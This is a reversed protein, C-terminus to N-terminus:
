FKGDRDVTASIRQSNRDPDKAASRVTVLAFNWRVKDKFGAMPLLTGVVARGTGGLAVRNTTGPLFEAAITSASTVETAGEDTLTLRRGLWGKGSIVREFVFRGDPGTASEYQVYYRPETRENTHMRAVNLSLPINPAPTKGIRFTGEVRAWPELHIIKTLDWDRKSKIHAFGSEHTIVLQFDSEQAPFHV